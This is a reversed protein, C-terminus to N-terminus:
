GNDTKGRRSRCINCFSLGVNGTGLVVGTFEVDSHLHCGAKPFVVAPLTCGEGQEWGSGVLLGWNLCVMCAGAEGVGDEGACGTGAGEEVSGVELEVDVLVGKREIGQWRIGVVRAPLWDANAGSISRANEDVIPRIPNFDVVLLKSAPNHALPEM